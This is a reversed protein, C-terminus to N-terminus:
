HKAYESSLMGPDIIKAEEYNLQYLKYILIDINHEILTINANIDNSKATLIEHVLVIIPMVDVNQVNPLPFQNLDQILIKPFAGKTAKPSHNFHYFSAFKSNLIALLLLIPFKNNDLIILLSPDNYLEAETYGAFISPNTIERILLRKGLFYKPQRPNAIGQCYDIYEQKNWNVTYKNVDAGWLWPKLGVKSNDFYHYARTKITEESQGQYKDYAILGQGVNPFYNSLQKTSNDIKKLLNLVTSELYFALGWNQNFEVLECNAMRQKPKNIFDNFKKVNRNNRYEVFTNTKKQWLNVTNRVVASQFIPFGSCDLIEIIGWENLINIRYSAAFTNFLYTNPIIYSLLGTENHLLTKAREIFYYYIEFDPVKGLSIEIRKRLQGKISIGYPPNGILIDFKRVGFM